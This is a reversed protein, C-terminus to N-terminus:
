QQWAMKEYRKINTAYKAKASYNKIKISQKDNM